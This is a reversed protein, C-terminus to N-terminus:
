SAAHLWSPRVSRAYLDKLTSLQKQLSDNEREKERLSSKVKETKAQWKKGEEWRVVEDKTQPVLLLDSFHLYYCITIAGTTAVKGHDDKM